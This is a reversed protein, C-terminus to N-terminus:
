YLSKKLAVLLCGFGVEWLVLLLCGFQLCVCAWLSGGMFCVIYRFIVRLLCCVGVFSRKCSRGVGLRLHHVLLNADKSDAM